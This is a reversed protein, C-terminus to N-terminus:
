YVLKFNSKIKKCTSFGDLKPMMVDLIILDINNNIGLILDEGNNYTSVQYGQNKLNYALMDLIDQEDDVIAINNKTIM